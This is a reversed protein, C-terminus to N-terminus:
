FQFGTIHLPEATIPQQSAPALIRIIDNLRTQYEKNFVDASAFEDLSTKYLAAVRAGLCRYDLTVQNM